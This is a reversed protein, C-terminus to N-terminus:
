MKVLTSVKSFFGEELHGVLNNLPQHFLSYPFLPLPPLSFFRPPPSLVYFFSWPSRRFPPNPANLVMGNVFMWVKWRSFFFFNIFLFRPSLLFPRVWGSKDNWNPGHASVYLSGLGLFFSSLSHFIMLLISSLSSLHFHFHFHFLLFFFLGEFVQGVSVGVLVSLLLVKVCLMM